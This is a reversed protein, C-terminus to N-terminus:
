MASDRFYWSSMCHVTAIAPQRGSGLGRFALVPVGTTRNLAITHELDTSPPKAKSNFEPGQPRAMVLCYISQTGLVM